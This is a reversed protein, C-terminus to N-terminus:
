HIDNWFEKVTCAIDYHEQKNPHATKGAFICYDSFRVYNRHNTIEKELTKLDEFIKEIQDDNTNHFWPFLQRNEKYIQQEITDQNLMMWKINQQNFWSILRLCRLWHRRLNEAQCFYKKYFNKVYYSDQYTDSFLAQSNFDIYERTDAKYVCNRVTTPWAIICENFKNNTYYYSMVDLEIREPSKGKLALNIINNDILYPWADKRNTLDDGYTISGGDVILM